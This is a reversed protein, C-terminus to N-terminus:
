DILKNEFIFFPHWPISYEYDTDSDPTGVQFVFSFSFIDLDGEQDFDGSSLTLCNGRISVALRFVEPNSEEVKDFYLWDM